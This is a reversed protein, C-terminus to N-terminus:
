ASEEIQSLTLTFKAGENEDSELNIKGGFRTILTKVWWLGFGLNSNSNVMHTSYSLEFIHDHLNKAIGPGTDQISVEVLGDNHRGTIFIEGHGKMANVANDFLNIFVLPLRQSCAHVNPLDELGEQLVKINEPFKVTAIAADVSDKVSVSTFRIPRLHFLNEQVIRIADSASQEIELLNNKLYQNSDIITDCKDQIGEIRVPIAGIKNNLQHLLNSAIDGIAAFAETVTRQEQAVRMAEQHAANKIALSAYQGLINLVNKDWEAQSFDRTDLAEVSVCLAGIPDHDQIDKEMSSFPVILTFGLNEVLCNDLEAIATDTIKIEKSLMTQGVVSDSLATTYGELEPIISAQIFVSDNERLWLTAYPVNLLDCAQEVIDQHVTKLPQSFLLNTTQQLVNLLRVEQIAAVAHTALIQLIYRDQRSFANVNPSELNLVGELRDSAGILPVALESRMILERDFPYYISDWPDEWLDSVILPTRSIAVKGTISNEDLPLSETAPRGKHEGVYAHTILQKGDKDVLRFIGYKAETVELAMHLIADLTDKLSTHSSILMGARRLGRLEKEKRTQEQQAHTFRQAAALTLAAMNVFNDLMLLELQDFNNKEHHYLYLVGLMEKGVELPYCAVAKAGQNVKSPNITYDVLEYSLMRRGLGVAKVGLGEPRPIDPPITDDHQESSVRSNVNFSASKADYPYIVASSRQVVETASEVILRLTDQFSDMDKSANQNIATGIQNLRSLIKELHPTNIDM